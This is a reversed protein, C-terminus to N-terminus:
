IEFLLDSIVEHKGEFRILRPLTGTAREVLQNQQGIMEEKFFPDQNGTLYLIEKSKGWKETRDIPIDPPFTGAWLVLKDFKVNGFAGFRSATAAGQSFGFLTISADSNLVKEEELVRNLYAIQNNIETLRDERTMWVAGVKGSFGELYHKSLGQPAIIFNARADLREFKKIFYKALMGYGHFVIWIRKTESTLDNLMCYSAKLNVELHKEM